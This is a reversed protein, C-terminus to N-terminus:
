NDDAEPQAIAAKILEDIMIKLGGSIFAGADELIKCISENTTLVQYVSDFEVDGVDVEVFEWNTSVFHAPSGDDYVPQDANSNGLFVHDWIVCLSGKGDKVSLLAVTGCVGEPVFVSTEGDSFCISKKARVRLRLRCRKKENQTTNM